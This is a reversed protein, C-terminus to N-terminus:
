PFFSSANRAKKFNNSNPQETLIEYRTGEDDDDDEEKEEEKEWRKM